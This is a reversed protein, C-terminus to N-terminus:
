DNIKEALESASAKAMMKYINKMTTWPVDVKYIYSGEGGCIHCNDGCVDDTCVLEVDITFEGICKAKMKSTVMPRQVFAFQYRPNALIEIVHRGM